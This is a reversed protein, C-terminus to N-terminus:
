RLLEGIVFVDVALATGAGTDATTCKVFLDANAAVAARAVGTLDITVWEEDADVGLATAAMIQTGGAATGITIEADGNAAGTIATVHAIALTPVIVEDAEGGFSSSIEDNLTQLDLGSISGGIRRCVTRDDTIQSLFPIAGDNRIEKESPANM